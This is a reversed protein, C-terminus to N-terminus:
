ISFRRATLSYSQRSQTERLARKVLETAIGQRRYAKDVVLAGGGMSAIPKDGDLVTYYGDNGTRLEYKGNLFAEAQCVKRVALIPARPRQRACHNNVGKLNDLSPTQV